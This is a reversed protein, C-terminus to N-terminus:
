SLSILEVQAQGDNLELLALCIPLSFRRPGASGPNVYLVGARREVKPKHSHGAIVVDIGAALPDIDLQKLDHLVHLTLGGIRLDLREPLELAWDATDINGRIAELPAITRLGDLVQPKGIDGAHIIQACGQLAAVAEPRLLGHTDSILGIRM